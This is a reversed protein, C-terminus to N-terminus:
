PKYKTIVFTRNKQSPGPYGLLLDADVTELRLTLTGDRALANPLWDIAIRQDFIGPLFTLTRGSSGLKYDVGETLGDATVSYTVHVPESPLTSCLHVTYLASLTGNCNVRDPGSADPNFAVYFAEFPEITTDKCGAVLFLCASFLPLLIRNMKM